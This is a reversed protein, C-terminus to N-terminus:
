VLHNFWRSGMASRTNMRKNSNAGHTFQAVFAIHKKAENLVLRRKHKYAVDKETAKLVIQEKLSFSM